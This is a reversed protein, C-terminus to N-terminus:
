GGGGGKRFGTDAGAISGEEPSRETNWLSRNIGSYKLCVIILGVHHIKMFLAGWGGVGRGVRGPWTHLYVDTGGVQSGKIHAARLTARMM